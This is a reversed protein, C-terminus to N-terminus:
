FYVKFGVNLSSEKFTYDLEVFDNEVELGVTKLNKYEIFIGSRDSTRLEGGVIFQAAFASGTLEEEVGDLSVSVSGLGGGIYFNSGIFSTRYFGNIMLKTSLINGYFNPESNDLPVYEFDNNSLGAEIEFAAHGATFGYGLNIPLVSSSEFILSGNADKHEGISASGMSAKFYRSVSREWSPPQHPRPSSSPVYQQPQQGGNNYGSDAWRAQAQFSITILAAAYTIIKFM